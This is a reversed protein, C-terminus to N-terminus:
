KRDEADEPSPVPKPQMVTGSHTRSTKQMKLVGIRMEALTMKRAKFVKKTYGYSELKM